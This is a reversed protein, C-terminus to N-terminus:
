ITAKKKVICAYMYENVRADKVPMLGASDILLGLSQRSIREHLPPGMPSEVKDWEVITLAGSSKMLRGMELLYATQDDVEHLVFALLIRDAVADPLPISKEDCLVAEVAAGAEVARRALEDLMEQSIDAAFVKGGAGVRGAAPIAFYGIGTGVDVLTVGPRLDMLDLVADPPVLKRRKDSDLRHMNESKFVKDM